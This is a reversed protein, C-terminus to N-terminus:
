GAGARRDRVLEYACYPFKPQRGTLRIRGSAELRDLAKTREPDEAIWFVSLRGERRVKELIEAEAEKAREAGGERHVPVPRRAAHGCYPCFNVPSLFRGNGVWLVGKDDEQCFLIPSGYESGPLIGECHHVNRRKNILPM